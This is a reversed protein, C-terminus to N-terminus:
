AHSWPRVSVKLAKDMNDFNIYKELKPRVWGNVIVNVFLDKVRERRELRDLVPCPVTAVHSPYVLYCAVDADGGCVHQSTTSVAACARPACCGLVLGHLGFHEVVISAAFCGCM